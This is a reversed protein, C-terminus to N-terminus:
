KVLWEQPNLKQQNGWIEFHLISGNVSNNDGVYAIIDQSKVEGDEHIQLNTVHTYVTYYGGGHDIIVTTGYGRIYTITTVIGNFVARVPAKPNGEIEIGPNETTTKLEPNWQSGFSSVVRGNIPWLLEGKLEAFNKSNLYARQDRIRQERLARNKDSLIQQRVAELQKLGEQKEKLFKELERKNNQIKSLERQTSVKNNQLANQQKTKEDTSAINRRLAVDLSNKQNTIDTILLKISDQMTKEIGSVIKMYRARYIAQEWTNSSLLKILLNPEGKKYVEIARKEYRALYQSLILENEPIIQELEEIQSRTLRQSRNLKNILQTILSMEKELASLKGTTSKEKNGQDKIDQQTKAIESKLSEIANDQDALQKDYPISSTQAFAVNLLLSIIITFRIRMPLLFVEDMFPM